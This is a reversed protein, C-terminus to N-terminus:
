AGPFSNKSLEWALRCQFVEQLVSSSVRFIFPRIDSTTSSRECWLEMVKSRGLEAIMEHFELWNEAMRAMGGDVMLYSRQNSGQVEWAHSIPNVYSQQYGRTLLSRTANNQVKHVVPRDRGEVNNM